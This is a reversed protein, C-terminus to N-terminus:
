GRPWRPPRRLAGARPGRDGDGTRPDGDAPLAPLRPLWWPASALVALTPVLLGGVLALLGGRLTYPLPEGGDFTQVSFYVPVLFWLVLAAFVAKPVAGGTRHAVLGLWLLGPVIWVGHPPWSVPSIVAATMGLVTVGLLDHGARYTRAAVWLGLLGVVAPFVITWPPPTMTGFLRALLGSVSHNVSFPVVLVRKVDAFVGGFWYDASDSPLVAFGLAVTAAFTGAAWAAARRRGTVFLYVPFVLPTLKIGAAIGLAIGQWRPPVSPVFAVVVLLMLLVNIQGYVLNMLVPDLLSAAVVALAAPARRDGRFRLLGLSLWVVGALGLVNAVTWVVGAVTAGPLSLPAFVLAAFPTYTFPLGAGGGAGVSMHYLPQGAVVAHGGGLYVRFDILWVYYAEPTPLRFLWGLGCVAAVAVVAAGFRVARWTSSRQGTGAV